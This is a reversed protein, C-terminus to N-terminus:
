LMEVGYSSLLDNKDLNESKEYVNNNGKMLFYNRRSNLISFLIVIAPYIEKNILTTEFFSNILIACIAAFASKAIKDERVMARNKFINRIFLWMVIGFIFLGYIVLILYIANHVNLSVYSELTINSGVGTFPVKKFKTFLEYWIMERGTFLSKGSVMVNNINNNWLGIYVAVFVLSGFTLGYVLISYFFKKTLIRNPILYRIIIFGILALLSGRSDSEIIIMTNKYIIYVSIIIIFINQYNKKKKVLLICSISLMIVASSAVTNLNYGYKSIHIWIFNFILVILALVRITKDTIRIYKTIILMIVFLFINIISGINTNNFIANFFIIIGISIIIGIDITKVKNKNSKIVFFTLVIMILFIFIPSNPTLINYININYQISVWYLILIYLISNIGTNINVNFKM